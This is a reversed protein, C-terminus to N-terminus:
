PVSLVETIAFRLAFALRRFAPRFVLLFVVRVTEARFVERGFARVARLAEFGARLATDFFVAGRRVAARLAVRM